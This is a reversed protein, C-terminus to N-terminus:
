VWRGYSDRTQRGGGGASARRRAMVRAVGQDRRKNEEKLYRSHWPTGSLYKDPVTRSGGRRIARHRDMLMRNVIDSQNGVYAGVGKMFGGQTLLVAKGASLKKPPKPKPKPKSKTLPPKITSKKAMETLRKTKFRKKIKRKKRVVMIGKATPKRSKANGKVNKKKFTKTDVCATYPAGKKNAKTFCKTPM